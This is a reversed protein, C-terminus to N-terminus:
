FGEKLWNHLVTPHDKQMLRELLDIAARLWVFIGPDERNCLDMATERGEHDFPLIDALLV